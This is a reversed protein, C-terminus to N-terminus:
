VFGTRSTTALTGYESDYTVPISAPNPTDGGGSDFTVTYQNATWHAYLTHDAETTVITESTVESGGAADNYWGDFSDYYSRIAYM